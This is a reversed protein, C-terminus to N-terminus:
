KRSLPQWSPEFADGSSTLQRRHTGDPNMVYVNGIARFEPGASFVIKRGDPSWDGFGIWRPRGRKATITRLAKGNAQIVAVQPPDLCHSGVLFAIKKGDPSWRPKDACGTHTLRHFGRGDAQITAVLGDVDSFVIRKGNPAWDPALGARIRHKRTGD